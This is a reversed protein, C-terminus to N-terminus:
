NKRIYLKNYKNVITVQASKEITKICIELNQIPVAGTILTNKSEEDEFVTTMGYSEEIKRMASELTSREFVLSGNKWSIQLEPRLVKEKEVIKDNKYSYTVLNGPIMNKQVGNNLRLAINGEELFVQTTTNRNNVNFSTGYVEVELDNTIVVFKAHTSPKKEVDFFAEGKLTIERVADNKYSLVSNSNLKVRTGDPLKIDIIEGYATKHLVKTSNDIVYFLTFSILLLAAAAIRQYKLKKYFPIKRVTTLANLKDEFQIWSESIKQESLNKKSFKIGLIVDKADYALQKKHPNDLIWQNWFEVDAMQTKNAWNIFSPDNILNEINGQQSDKM